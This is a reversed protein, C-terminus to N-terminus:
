PRHVLPSTPIFDLADGTDVRTVEPPVVGLGDARPLSAVLHSGSGFVHVPRATQGDLSVPIFQTKGAPSDWAQGARVTRHGADAARGAMTAILPAVHVHFSVFVSVPNGPLCLAPVARGGILVRGAGQPGGPQQAVRHFRMDPGALAQRVVEYAGASIGGATILLDIEPWSELTALLHTPDDNTRSRAAVVAGAESVLGSLLLANSDPIQGRSLAGSPAALEAGTTVIGVRPRRHVRVESHGTAAAASLAAGDLVRGASLIRAGPKVDEGRRRINAGRPPAQGVTVTAPAEAVGPEHDTEEVKVVTDAGDPIRAGTMIRAAQGAGIGHPAPDGAAIDAVVTLTAPLEALDALRLAFGDMASNTFPPVPLHAVLDEALVTGHAEDLTLTVAPLRGVLSSVLDRHEGPTLPLDPM